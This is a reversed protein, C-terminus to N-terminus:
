IAECGDCRIAEKCHGLRMCLAMGEVRNRQVELRHITFSEGEESSNHKSNEGLDGIDTAMSRGEDGADSVERTHIILPKIEFISQNQHILLIENLKFTGSLINVKYYM